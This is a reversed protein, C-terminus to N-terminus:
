GQRPPEFGEIGDLVLSHNADTCCNCNANICDSGIRHDCLRCTCVSDGFQTRKTTDDLNLTKNVIILVILFKLTRFHLLPYYVEFGVIVQYNIGTFEYFFATSTAAKFV